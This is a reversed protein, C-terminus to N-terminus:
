RAALAYVAGGFVALAYPMPENALIRAGEQRVLRRLLWTRDADEDAPSLAPSAHRLVLRAALYVCGLLGGTVTIALLM